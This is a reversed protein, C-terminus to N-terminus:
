MSRKPRRLHLQILGCGVLTACLVFLGWRSLAPVSTAGTGDPGYLEASALFRGEEALGGAVLVRGSALLTATHFYRAATLPAAPSWSNSSPDYLEASTLVELGGFGGVVLLQGTPLLTATHSSRKAAMPAAFSWNNSGPDYIEASAHVGGEGDGGTVLM